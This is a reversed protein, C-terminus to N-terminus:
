RLYAVEFAFISFGVLDLYTLVLKRYHDLNISVSKLDSDVEGAM